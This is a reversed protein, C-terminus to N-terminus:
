DMPLMLRLEMLCGDGRTAVSVVDSGAGMETNGLCFLTQGRVASELYKQKLEESGFVSLGKLGLDAHALVAVAVGPSIKALHELRLARILAPEELLGGERVVFGFWGAQGLDQFFGRPVSREAYWRALHPVLSTDLFSKFMELDKMLEEPISFDM